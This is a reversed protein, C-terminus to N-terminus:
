LKSILKEITLTLQHTLLNNKELINILNNDKKNEDDKLVNPHNIANYRYKNNALFYETGFVKYKEIWDYLRKSPTKKNLINMDFGAMSFIERATKEPHNLKQLVAWLKFKNSYVLQSKNKIGLINPNLLLKKIENDNFTRVRQM